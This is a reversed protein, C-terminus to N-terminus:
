SARALLSDARDSVTTLVRRATTLDDPPLDAYLPATTQDVAARIRAYRDRGADSLEVASGPGTQLLRQEALDAITADAAADDIRLADALRTVLEGRDISDGNLATFNLAVWEHFSGGTDALVRDMLARLTRETRGIFQTLPPTPSV